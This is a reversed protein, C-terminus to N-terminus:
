PAHHTETTGGDRTDATLPDRADQNSGTVNLESKRALVLSSSERSIIYAPRNQTHAFIRILYESMVALIVFQVFFLGAIQLSLSAWGEALENGRLLHALVVYVAYLVSLTAGLLSGVSMWRLPRKSSLLLLTVARGFSEMYDVDTRAGARRIREYPMTTYPIGTFAAIVPFLNYRDRNETFTNVVRRTLLRLSSLDAPVDEATIRRYAVFFGRAARQYLGRRSKDSRDTRVGYVIEHGAYYLGLLDSLRDPPDQAADMTVVVDGIAHELGVVYASDMGIRRALSYLQVNQRRRQLAEVRAVTADRSCDDVLVIEYDKFRSSLVGALEDVFEDIYKEANRVPTVVSVFLDSRVQRASANM